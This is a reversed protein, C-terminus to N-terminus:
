GAVEPEHREDDVGPADLRGTVCNAAAVEDAVRRGLGTRADRDTVQQSM